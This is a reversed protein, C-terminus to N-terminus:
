MWRGRFHAIKNIVNQREAQLKELPIFSLKELTAGSWLAISATKHLRQIPGQSFQIKQIKIQPVYTTKIGLLGQRVAFGDQNFEYGISFWHKINLMSIALLIGLSWWVPLHTIMLIVAAIITVLGGWIASDWFIKTSVCSKWEPTKINLMALIDNLQERTAVPIIFGANIASKPNKMENAQRVEISYRNLLRAILSQKVVLTQLKHKRFGSALRNLLGAQFQFREGQVTLTYDWYKILSLAISVLYILFLIFGFVIAGALIVMWLNHSQFYGFFEKAIVSEGIWNSLQRWFKENQGLIPGLIAVYYILTNHMLGYRLLDVLNLKIQYDIPFNNEIPIQTESVKSEKSEQVVQSKHADLVQKKILQALRDNLAPLIIEEKGSGASELKLAWLNFPRFYIAQELNAEQVREFYLTLNKKFILGRRIQIKEGDFKFKFFWYNIISIILLAAAFGAIGLEFIWQRAAPVAFAGAFIPWLNFAQNLNRVFFYVVSIPSVRSWESAKM